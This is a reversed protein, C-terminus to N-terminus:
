VSRWQNKSICRQRGQRFEQIFYISNGNAVLLWGSSSSWERAMEQYGYLKCFCWRLVISGVLNSSAVCGFSVISGCPEVRCHWTEHMIIVDSIHRTSIGVANRDIRNRTTSCYRAQFIPQILILCCDCPSFLFFADIEWLFENALLEPSKNNAQKRSPNLTYM